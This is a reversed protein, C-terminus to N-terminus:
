RIRGITKAVFKKTVTWYQKSMIGIAAATEELTVGLAAAPAGAYKFAYGLDQIGAASVNAAMALVDAIHTSKEAELGWINLASAVTDSAVALSEGSAESAAIIGPMAGLVDNVEFGAAALDTMANAVETAGKSSSQGLDLAAESMMELEAANAGAIAGTKRIATDFDVFQKVSVAAAATIAAFGVTAAGAASKLSSTMQDDLRLVALLDIAM